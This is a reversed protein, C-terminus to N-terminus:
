DSLGPIFPIVALTVKVFIVVIVSWILASLLGGMIEGGLGPIGLQPPQFTLLQGLISWANLGTGNLDVGFNAQWSIFGNDWSEGINWSSNYPLLAFNMRIAECKAFFISAGATSDWQAILDDRQIYHQSGHITGLIPTVGNSKYFKLDHQGWWYGWLDDTLHKIKFAKGYAPVPYASWQFSIAQSSPLGFAGKATKYEDPWSSFNGSVYYRYQTLNALSFTRAVEQNQNRFEASNTQLELFGSDMTLWLLSSICLFTFAFIFAKDLM